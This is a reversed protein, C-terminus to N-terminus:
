SGTITVFGDFNLIVSQATDGFIAKGTPSRRKGPVFIHDCGNNEAIEIIRDSPRNEDVLEGRTRYEVNTGGLVSSSVHEVFSQIIKQDSDLQTTNVDPGLRERLEEIMEERENPAVLTAVILEVDLAEAITKAERLLQVSAETGDIVVVSRQM